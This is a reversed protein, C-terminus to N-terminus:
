KKNLTLSVNVDLNKLSLNVLNLHTLTLLTNLANLKM